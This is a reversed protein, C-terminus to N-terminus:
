EPISSPTLVDTVGGLLWAAQCLIFCWPPMGWILALLLYATLLRVFRDCALRTLDARKDMPRHFVKPFFWCLLPIVAITQAIQPLQPPFHFRWFAFAVGAQAAWGIVLGALRRWCLRANQALGTLIVVLTQRWYWAASRGRRFEELLDGTLPPNQRAAGFRNLLWNALAPPKRTSM